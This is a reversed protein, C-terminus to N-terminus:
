LSACAPAKVRLVAEQRFRSKYAEVIEQIARESAADDPHVLTLVRSGERVINGDQGRWQGQAPFVTLGQPFRPTVVDRVFAQFEPEALPGRPTAMGLYLTDQAVPTGADCRAGGTVTCATVSLASAVLVLFQVASAERTGGRRGHPDRKV